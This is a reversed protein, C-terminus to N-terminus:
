SVNGEQLIRALAPPTAKPKEGDEDAHPDRPPIITDLDLAGFRPAKQEFFEVRVVRDDDLDILKVGHERLKKLLEFDVM